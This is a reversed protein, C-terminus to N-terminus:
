LNPELGNERATDRAERIANNTWGVPISGEPNDKTPKSRYDAPDIVCIKGEGGLLLDHVISGIDSAATDEQEQAGMRPHQAYVHAPSRTILRHAAGSSLSPEPCPDALYQAMPLAGAPYFGPNM